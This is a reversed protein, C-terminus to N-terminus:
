VILGKFMLNHTYKTRVLNEARQIQVSLLIVSKSAIKKKFSYNNFLLDCCNFFHSQTFATLFDANQNSNHLSKWPLETEFVFNGLQTTIYSHSPSAIVWKFQHAVQLKIKKEKRLLSAPNGRINSLPLGSTSLPFAHARELLIRPGRRM